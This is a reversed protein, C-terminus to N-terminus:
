NRNRKDELKQSSEVSNWLMLSKLGVIGRAVLIRDSFGVAM